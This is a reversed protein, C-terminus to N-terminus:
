RLAQLEIRETLTVPAVSCREAITPNRRFDESINDPLSLHYRVYMEITVEELLGPSKRKM